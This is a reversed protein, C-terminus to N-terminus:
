KATFLDPNIQDTEKGTKAAHKLANQSDKQLM